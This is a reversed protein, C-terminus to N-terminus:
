DMGSWNHGDVRVGGLLLYWRPPSRPLGWSVSCPPSTRTYASGDAQLFVRNNPMGPTARAGVILPRRLRWRAGGRVAPPLGGRHTRRLSSAVCTGVRGMVVM